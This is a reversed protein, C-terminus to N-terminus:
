RLHDIDRRAVGLKKCGVPFLDDAPFVDLQDAIPRELDPELFELFAFVLKGVAHQDRRDHLLIVAVGPDFDDLAALVRAHIGKFQIEGARVTQGFSLHARGHAFIRLDEFFDHPQTIAAALFGTQAFIVGFTVCMSSGLRAAKRPPQWPTLAILVMRLTM